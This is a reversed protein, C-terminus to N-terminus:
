RAYRRMCVRWWPALQEPNGLWVQRHIWSMTEASSLVGLKEAANLSNPGETLLRIGLKRVDPTAAAIQSLIEAYNPNLQSERLLSVHVANVYPDLVVDAMGSNTPRVHEEEHTQLLAMRTQITELEPPTAVEEPVLFLGMVRARLGLSGRSSLVCLPISLVMGALVPSFWYFVIPDLTWVFVGWILGLATPGWLQRVADEWSTGDAGRNQTGWNVGVGMLITAVFKSHWLMQLPAHLTSFITEVLAGLTARSFGGFSRCREPERALDILALFRPFLLTFMCIVFILFGHEPGSLPIFPTLSTVTIDSLESHQKYWVTWIFTFLFALWLPGALYGFIGM